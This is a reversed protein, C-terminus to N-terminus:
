DVLIAGVKNKVRKYRGEKSLQRLHGAWILADMGDIVADKLAVTAWHSGATKVAHAKLENYVTELVERPERRRAAPNMAHWKSGALPYKAPPMNLLEHIREVAATRSAFRRVPRAGVKAALKNYEAVLERGSLEALNVTTM